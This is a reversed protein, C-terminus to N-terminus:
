NHAMSIYQFKATPWKNKIGTFRKWLIFLPRSSTERGIKRCSKELFINTKNYEILQGFKM